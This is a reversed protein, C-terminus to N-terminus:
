AVGVFISFNRDLSTAICAYPTETYQAHVLFRSPRLREFRIGFTLSPELKTPSCSRRHRLLQFPSDTNLLEIFRATDLIARTRSNWNVGMAVPETCPLQVSQTLRFSPKNRRVFPRRLCRYTLLLTRQCPHSLIQVKVTKSGLYQFRANRLNCTQGM